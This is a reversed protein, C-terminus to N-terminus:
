GSICEAKRLILVGGAELAYNGVMDLRMKHAPVVLLGVECKPFNGPFLIMLM